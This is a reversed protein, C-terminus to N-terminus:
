VLAAIMLYAAWLILATLTRSIYNKVPFAPRHTPHNERLIQFFALDYIVNTFILLTLFTVLPVNMYIARMFFENGFAPLVAYIKSIFVTTFIALFHLTQDLLFPYLFLKTKKQLRIKGIDIVGHLLCVIVIAGITQADHLYPLLFVLAVAFHVLVHLFVGRLNKEKYRVLRSPQLLFDAVIHSFLLYFVAM